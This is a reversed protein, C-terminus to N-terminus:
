PRWPGVGPSGDYQESGGQICGAIGHRGREQKGQLFKAWGHLPLQPRRQFANDPNPKTPQECMQKETPCQARPPCPRAKKMGAGRTGLGPRACLLLGTWHASPSRQTIPWPGKFYDSGWSNSPSPNARKQSCLDRVPIPVGRLSSRGHSSRGLVSRSVGGEEGQSKM